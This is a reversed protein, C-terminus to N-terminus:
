WNLSNAISTYCWYMIKFFIWFILVTYLSVVISWFVKENRSFTRSKWLFPLGLAATVGFLMLLMMWRNEIVEMMKTVTTQKKGTQAVPPEPSAQVVPPESTM